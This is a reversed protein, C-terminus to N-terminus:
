WPPHNLLSFFSGGANTTELNAGLRRHNITLRRHDANIGVTRLPPPPLPPCWPGQFFAVFFSGKGQAVFTGIHRLLPCCSIHHAARRTTPRHPDVHCTSGVWMGVHVVFGPVCNGFPWHSSSVAVPWLQNEPVGTMCVQAEPM